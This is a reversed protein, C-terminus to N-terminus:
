ETGGPGSNGLLERAVLKVAEEAIDDPIFISTEEYTELTACSTITKRPHKGELVSVATKTTAGICDEALKGSKM